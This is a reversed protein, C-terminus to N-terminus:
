TPGVLELIFRSVEARNAFIEEQEPGPPQDLLEVPIASVGAFIAMSIAAARGLEARTAAHGETRVGEAYASLCWSWLDSLDGAPREGLQIEGLVLQSLDLGLPAYRVFDFDIMVLTGDPTRLLNRTCADGHCLGTRLGELEPLLTPLREGLELLGARYPSFHQAVLPHDWLGPDHLAPLVQLAVRGEVYDRVRQAAVVTRIPEIAEAVRLGAAFRGLLSAAQAYRPYDWPSDDFAIDEMWIAAADPGLELVAYAEPMRLEDPLARAVETRYVLPEIEWPLQALAGARHEPPVFQFHPSLAWSQVAKVFISIPVTGHGTEATGRVRYRGRTTLAPINYPVEHVTLDTSLVTPEGASRAAIDLLQDPSTLGLRDVRILADTSM